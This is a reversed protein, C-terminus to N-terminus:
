VVLTEIDWLGLSSSRCDQLGTMSIHLNHLTSIINCADDTATTSRGLWTYVLEAEEYIQPMMGVLHGREEANRQNICTQDAWVFKSSDGNTYICRLASALNSGVEMM